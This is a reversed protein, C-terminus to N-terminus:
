CQWGFDHYSVDSESTELTAKESVSFWQGSGFFSVIKESIDLM